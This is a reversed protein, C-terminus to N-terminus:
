FDEIQNLEDIINDLSGSDSANGSRTAEQDYRDKLVDLTNIKGDQYVDLNPNFRPDNQDAHFFYEFDVLDYGFSKLLTSKATAFVTGIIGALLLIVIALPKIM